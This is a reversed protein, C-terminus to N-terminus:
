PCVAMWGCDGYDYFFLFFFLKEATFFKILEECSRLVGRKRARKRLYDGGAFKLVFSERLGIFISCENIRARSCARM